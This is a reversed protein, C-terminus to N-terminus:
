AFCTFRIFIKKLSYILVGMKGNQELDMLHCLFASVRMSRYPEKGNLFFPIFIDTKCPTLSLFSLVFFLCFFFCFFFLVFFCFFWFFLFFLFVFCGCCRFFCVPYGLLGISLFFFTQHDLAQIQLCNYVRRNIHM